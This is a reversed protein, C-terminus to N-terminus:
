MDGYYDQNRPTLDIPFEGGADLEAQTLPDLSTGTIYDAPFHEPLYVEQEDCYVIQGDATRLVIDQIYEEPDDTTLVYEGEVKERGKATYTFGVLKQGVTYM